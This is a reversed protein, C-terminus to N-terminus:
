TYVLDLLLKKTIFSNLPNIEIPIIGGGGRSFSGKFSSKQQSEEMVIISPGNRQQSLQQSAQQRQQTGQSAIQAPTGKPPQQNGQSAIQAKPPQQRQQSAIQAPTGKPPQKKQQTATEAPTGKPPQKKQQTGKPPQQRQQPETQAPPKGPSGSLQRGISLLGVYPKPDIARGFPGGPRVEFHLHIDPSNGTNGIEGITQGNYSEGNRVMMKALHAFRYCTGDSTVIDVTLGYGGSNGSFVVKGSNRFSVYFGRTNYTGIDIGEHRRGGKRSAGFGQGPTLGGLSSKNASVNLEDKVTTSVEAQGLPRQTSQASPKQTSKAPTQTKLQEQYIQLAQKASVRSQGYGGGPLSAWEGGLKYIDRESLPKSPNVGRKKMLYLAAKDQSEPSFDKLNLAKAALEWTPTLFQYRGAASSSYGGSTIVKDPHKWGKSTDFTGGGFMTNYNAGEVRSDALMDLAAREYTNGYNAKGRANGGGGGGSPQEQFSQNPYETGFPAADEGSAIGEGLSTTLMRFGEDFQSQMDNFNINLDSMANKVRNNSDTFDFTLINKGAAGLLNGFGKLISITNNFFGTVITALRQMRAILEQAMTIISPLNYALWGILLTGLFDMIRGLFGKTSSVVAKGQRKIVGGISSAEILDERNKRREAEQRRQSLIYSRAISERKVKTKKLLINNVNGTKKNINSFSDRVSKIGSRINILDKSPKVAVVM